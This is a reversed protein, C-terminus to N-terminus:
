RLAGAEAEEEEEEAEEKGRWGRFRKGEFWRGLSFRRRKGDPKCGDDDKDVTWAHHYRCEAIETKSLCEPAQITYVNHM